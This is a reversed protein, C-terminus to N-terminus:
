KLERKFQLIFDKEEKSVRTSERIKQIAKNHIWSDLSNEKLYELTKERFKIFMISILWAQAMKVYYEKSAISSCLPFIEDIYKEELYYDLLTVLGFRIKWPDDSSTCEKIFEYYREKEKNLFKLNGVVIDCTAWNDIEAIFSDIYGKRVEYDVKIFGLVLGKIVGEEYYTNQSYNIFDKWEGKSIEKAIEKLKPTRIGILNKEVGLLKSHFNKYEIDELSILYNIFEQYSEKNWISNKLDM